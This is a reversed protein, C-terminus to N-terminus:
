DACLTCSKLQKIEENHKEWVYHYYHVANMCIYNLRCLVQDDTTRGFTPPIVCKKQSTTRVSSHM